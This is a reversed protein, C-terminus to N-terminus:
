KSWGEVQSRLNGQATFNPHYEYDAEGEQGIDNLLDEASNYRVVYWEGDWCSCGTAMALLFTGQREAYIATQDVTYPDTTNDTFAIQEAGEPFFYMEGLETKEISM